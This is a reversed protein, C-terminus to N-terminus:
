EECNVTKYDISGDVEARARLEDLLEGTTACGLWPEDNARQSATHTTLEEELDDIRKLDTNKLIAEVRIHNELEDIRKQQFNWGAEEPEGQSYCYYKKYWEEQTM